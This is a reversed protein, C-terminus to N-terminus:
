PEPTKNKPTLLADPKVPKRGYVNLSSLPQHAVLPDEPHARSLRAQNLSELLNNVKIFAPTDTAAALTAQFRNLVCLASEAESAHEPQIRKTQSVDYALDLLIKYYAMTGKSMAEGCKTLESLILSSANDRDRASAFSDNVAVTITSFNETRKAFPAGVPGRVDHGNQLTNSAQTFRRQIAEQTVPKRIHFFGKKKGFLHDPEFNMAELYKKSLDTASVVRARKDAFWRSLSFKEKRQYFTLTTQKHKEDVSIKAVWRGTELTRNVVINLTHDKMKLGALVLRKRM